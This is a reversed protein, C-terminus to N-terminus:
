QSTISQKDASAHLTCALRVQDGAQFGLFWRVDAEWPEPFNSLQRAPPLNTREFCKTENRVVATKDVM